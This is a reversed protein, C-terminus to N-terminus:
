GIWKASSQILRDAQTLAGFAILMLVLQVLAAPQAVAVWAPVGRAAGILPLSAQLLATVLALALAFQGIEAIM